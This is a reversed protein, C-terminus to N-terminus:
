AAVRITVAKAVRQAMARQSFQNAVSKLDELWQNGDGAIVIERRGGKLRGSVPLADDQDRAIM